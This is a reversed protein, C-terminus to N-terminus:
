GYSCSQDISSVRCIAVRPSAEIKYWGVGYSKLWFIPRKPHAPDYQHTWEIIEGFIYIFKGSDKAIAGFLFCPWLSRLLSCVHCTSRQSMYCFCELSLPHRALTKSHKGTAHKTEEIPVWGKFHLPGSRQLSDLVQLTGSQSDVIDVNFINRQPLASHRAPYEKFVKADSLPAASTSDM